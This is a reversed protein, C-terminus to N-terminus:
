GKSQLAFGDSRLHGSKMPQLKRAKSTILTDQWEAAALQDDELMPMGEEGAPQSDTAKRPTSSGGAYGVDVTVVLLSCEFANGHAGNSCTCRMVSLYLLLQIIPTLVSAAAAAHWADQLLAAAAMLGMSVSSALGGGAAGAAAAEPKSRRTVSSGAANGGKGQGGESRATHAQTTGLSSCDVNPSHDALIHAEFARVASAPAADSTLWLLALNTCSGHLVGYLQEGNTATRRCM